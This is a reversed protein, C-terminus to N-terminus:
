IPIFINGLGDNVKSTILADIAASSGAGTADSSYFLGITDGASSV